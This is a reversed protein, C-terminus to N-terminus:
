SLPAPAEFLGLSGTLQPEQHEAEDQVLCLRDSICPHSFCLGGKM